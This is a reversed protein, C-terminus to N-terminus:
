LTVCLCLHIVGRWGAGRTLYAGTMAGSVLALKPDHPRCEQTYSTIRGGFDPNPTVSEIEPKLTVPNVGM